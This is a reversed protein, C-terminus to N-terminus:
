TIREPEIVQKNLARIVIITSMVVQIADVPMIVLESAPMADEIIAEETDMDTAEVIDM